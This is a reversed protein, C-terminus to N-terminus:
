DEKNAVEGGGVGGLRRTLLKVAVGM